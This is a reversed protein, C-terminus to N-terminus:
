SKNLTNDYGSMQFGGGTNINDWHTSDDGRQESGENVDYHGGGSMQFEESTEKVEAQAASLTFTAVAAIAMYKYIKM